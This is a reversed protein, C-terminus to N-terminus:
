WAYWYVFIIIPGYKTPSSSSGRTLRRGRLIQRVRSMQFGRLIQRRRAELPGEIDLVGEVNPEIQDPRAYRRAEAGTHGSGLSSPVAQFTKVVNAQFGLGSDPRSQRIHAM